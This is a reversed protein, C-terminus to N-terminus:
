KGGRKKKKKKANCRRRRMSAAVHTEFLLFSQVHQFYHSERERERERAQESKIYKAASSAEREAMSSTAGVNKTCDKYLVRAAWCAHWLHCAVRHLMALNASDICAM